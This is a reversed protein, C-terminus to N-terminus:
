VPIELSNTWDHKSYTAIRSEMRYQVGASRRRRTEEAGRVTCRNIPSLSPGEHREGLGWGFWRTGNSQVLAQAAWPGQMLPKRAGSGVDM